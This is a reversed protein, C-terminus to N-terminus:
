MNLLAPREVVGSGRLLDMTMMFDISTNDCKGALVELSGRVGAKRDATVLRTRKFCTATM